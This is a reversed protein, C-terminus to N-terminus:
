DPYTENIHKLVKQYEEPEFRYQEKLEKLAEEKTLPKGSQVLSFDKEVIKTSIVKLRIM